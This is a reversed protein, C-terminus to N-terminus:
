NIMKDIWMRGKKNVRITIEGNLDTRYIKSGITELRELVDSFPHGFSNNKGCGILAIKANITELFAESSSTKSGHHPIKIITSQLYESEYLKLIDKEAKEIDGTFLISFCNYVLRFTISNNNLDDYKLSSEPYLIDIYLNNELQIKNKQNVILINIKKDKIINIINTFEDSLQAQKAIIVNKVNLKEIIPILGNCHDSDFHSIIM